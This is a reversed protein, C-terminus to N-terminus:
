QARDKTQAPRSRRLRFSRRKDFKPNRAKRVLTKKKRPLPSLLIEVASRTEQKGPEFKKRFPELNERITDELSKRAM